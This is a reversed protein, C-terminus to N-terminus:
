DWGRCGCYFIDVDVGGRPEFDHGLIHRLHTADPDNAAREHALEHYRCVKCTSTAATSGEGRYEFFALDTSSPAERGCDCRAIRNQLNM